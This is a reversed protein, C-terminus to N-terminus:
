GIKQYLYESKGNYKLLKFGLPLMFKEWGTPTMSYGDTFDPNGVSQPCNDKRYTNETCLLYGEKKLILHIGKVIEKKDPENRNHQLVSATFVMDFQGEDFSDTLRRGNGTVWVPPTSLGAPLEAALKLMGSSQDFGTYHMGEFLKRWYGPGCGVDIVKSDPPLYSEVNERLWGGQCGSTSDFTFVERNADRCQNAHNDWVNIDRGDALSFRKEQSVM